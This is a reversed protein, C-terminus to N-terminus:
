RRAAVVGSVFEAGNVVFSYGAETSQPGYFSGRFTGTGGQPGTITGSFTNSTGDITGSGTFEIPLETQGLNLYHIGTLVLHITVTHRSFDAVFGGANRDPYVEYTLGDRDYQALTFGQYTFTGSTLLDTALTPYGFVFIYRNVLSGDTSSTQTDGVDLYTFRASASPNDNRPKLLALSNLNNGSADLYFNYM